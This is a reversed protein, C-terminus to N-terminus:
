DLPSGLSNWKLFEEIFSDIDGDMTAQTNGTEYKTRHDKVMQYPHFVYSRIQNGWSIEKKEPSKDAMQAEKEKQYHEYLKTKLMKMATDKNKHQSRENQCQTVIGTPIHTIRVASDTTNVHQGGAGQARYTDIRLEDPKIIVEIDDSLIPDSFVSCFSTHRRSSSDFPSIRVLRHIGTECSLYGYANPGKVEIIASKVGGEAEMIDVITAKFNKREAWRLYMRMLMSAWDCAETGGAGAQITLFADSSDLEGGLLKELNLKDFKVKLSDLNYKIEEEQTEDKETLAMEYLLTLEESEEKIERWPEIMNKLRKIESLISQSLERNNWFGEELTISEKAKIEEEKQSPNLSLWTKEIEKSIIEIESKLDSLM